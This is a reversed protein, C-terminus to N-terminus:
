GLRSISFNSCVPTLDMTALQDRAKKLEPKWFTEYANEVNVSDEPDSIKAQAQNNLSQMTDNIFVEAKAKSMINNTEMNQTLIGQFANGITESLKASSEGLRLAVSPDPKVQTNITRPNNFFSKQLKM